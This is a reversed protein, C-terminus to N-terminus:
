KYIRGTDYIQVKKCVEVLTENSVSRGFTINNRITDPFLYPEQFVMSVIDCWDKREIQEIVIGNVLIRGGTPEYFRVLMQAITSKGGGSAGVFAIKKGVPLSLSIDKM